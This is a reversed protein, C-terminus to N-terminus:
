SYVSDKNEAATKLVRHCDGYQQFLLIGLMFQRFCSAGPPRILGFCPETLGINAAQIAAGAALASIPYLGRRKVSEIHNQTHALAIDSESAPEATIFEVHPEIVEVIAEMRGQAAAPDSTYVQYFDEHFIVKM